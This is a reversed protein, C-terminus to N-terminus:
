VPPVPGSRVVEGLTQEVPKFMIPKLGNKSNYYSERLAHKFTSEVAKVIQLQVTSTWKTLHSELMAEADAKTMVGLSDLLDAIKIRMEPPSRGVAKLSPQSKHKTDDSDSEVTTGVMYETACRATQVGLFPKM